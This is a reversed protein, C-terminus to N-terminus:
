LRLDDEKVRGRIIDLIFIDDMYNSQNKTDHYTRRAELDRNTKKIYYEDALAIESEYFRLNDFAKQSKLVIQEGLSGLRMAVSIKQLSITGMIFDQAFSFYSDDARYGVIVDFDKIDILYNEQLFDKAQKAISKEQWYSRYRTLLALWNLINYESSNLNCIKMGTADFEYVNVFGNNGKKCAWEKALEMNETCYFGRGYDNSYNGYNSDPKSIIHESGHYITKKDDM